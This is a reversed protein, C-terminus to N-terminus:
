SLGPVLKVHLGICQRGDPLQSYFVQDVCQEILFLGMGGELPEDIQPISQPEFPKGNHIIEIVLSEEEFRSQCHIPQGPEGEYGHRIVNTVAETAAILLNDLVKGTDETAAYHAIAQKCFTRLRNLDDFTSELEITLMPKGIMSNKM